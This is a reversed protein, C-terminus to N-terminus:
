VKFYKKAQEYSELSGIDYRRGLFHYAYVPKREVLWCILQGPADVNEGSEVFRKILPLTERRYFYFPPVAYASKPQCPKEEFSRLRGDTDIEAVGTKRLADLNTETYATVCDAQLSDFFRAFDALCFDFLNDGALVLTDEDICASEIALALDAVAGLRHDNDSTGDDIVIVPNKRPHNAIFEEFQSKFKTNTVLVVTDIERVEEVKALIHELITKDGMLLLSKPKDKTLPYLRTAYGAALLVCKM